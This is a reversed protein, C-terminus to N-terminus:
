TGNNWSELVFTSALEGVQGAVECCDSPRKTGLWRNQNAWYHKHYITLKGKHYILGKNIHKNVEYHLVGCNM